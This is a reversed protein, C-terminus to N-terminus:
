IFFRGLRILMLGTSQKSLRDSASLDASAEQRRRKAKQQQQELAKAKFYCVCLSLCVDVDAAVTSDRNNIVSTSNEMREARGNCTATWLFHCIKM